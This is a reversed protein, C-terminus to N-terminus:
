SVCRLPMREPFEAVAAGVRYLVIAAKVIISLDVLMTPILALAVALPLNFLWIALALLVSFM